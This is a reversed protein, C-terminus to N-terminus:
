NIEVVRNGRASNPAAAFHDGLLDFEKERMGWQEDAKFSPQHRAILKVFFNATGSTERSVHVLEAAKKAVDKKWDFRHDLELGIQAM